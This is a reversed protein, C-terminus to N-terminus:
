YVNTTVAIGILLIKKVLDFELLISCKVKRIILGAKQPRM